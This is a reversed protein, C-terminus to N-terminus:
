ESVVKVQSRCGYVQWGGEIMVATEISTYRNPNFIYTGIDHSFCIYANERGEIKFQTFGLNVLKQIDETMLAATLLPNRTKTYSCDAIIKTLRENTKNFIAKDVDNLKELQWRTLTEYHNKANQCNPICKHNAIFECREPYKIKRLFEDDYVKAPNIVVIDYNDFLKNYYDATDKCPGLGVEISPKVQSSIRELSPYKEKIYENLIDLAIIVGNKNPLNEMYTHNNDEIIKLMQNSKEDSLDDETIFPSSFTLRCAIGRKNYGDIIEKIQPLDYDYNPVRGGQFVCPVGGFAYKIPLELGLKTKCIDILGWVFDQHGFLSAINWKTEAGYDKLIEM